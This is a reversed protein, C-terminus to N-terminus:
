LNNNKNSEYFGKLADKMKKIETEDTTIPDLNENFNINPLQNSFRNMRASTHFEFTNLEKALKLINDSRIGSGPMIILDNSHNILENLLGTGEIATPQLGSTLIRECGTDIIDNLAEFPNKVRDFARHFTVGMPYAYEVLQSTKSKDINGKEDLLGLVIGDCGLTKSIKIDEKMISFEEDSYIFDGGRPRIMIFLDIKLLKRAAKIFGYSPTTGGDGPNDCLEIRSAGAQQAILCGELSFGIVELKYAM